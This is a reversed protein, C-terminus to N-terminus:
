HHSGFHWLPIESAFMPGLTRICCLLSIPRKILVPYTSPDESLVKSIWIAIGTESATQVFPVSSDTTTIVAATELFLIYLGECYQQGALGFRSEVITTANEAIAIGGDAAQVVGLAQRDHFYTGIIGANGLQVPNDIPYVSM